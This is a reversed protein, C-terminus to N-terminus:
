PCGGVVLDSVRSHCGLLHAKRRADSKVTYLRPPMQYTCHNDRCPLRYKLVVPPRTWGKQKFPPRAVDAGTCPTLSGLDKDTNVFCPGTLLKRCSDVSHGRWSSSSSVPSVSGPCIDSRTIVKRPLVPRFGPGFLRNSCFCQNLQIVAPPKSHSTSVLALPPPQFAFPSVVL